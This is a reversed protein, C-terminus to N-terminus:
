AYAASSTVLPGIRLSTLLHLLDVWCQLAETRHGHGATKGQQQHCGTEIELGGMYEQAEYIHGDIKAPFADVDLREIIQYRVLGGSVLLIDSMFGKALNEVKNWKMFESLKKGSSQDVVPDYVIVLTKVITTLVPEVPNDPDITLKSPPPSQRKFFSFM